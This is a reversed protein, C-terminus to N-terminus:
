VQNPIKSRENIFISTESDLEPFNETKVEISIGIRFLVPEM